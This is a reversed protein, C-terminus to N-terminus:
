APSFIRKLAQRMREYHSGPWYVRDCGACSSFNEQVALVTPPLRHAVEAKDVAALPVNCHLCLTFPRALPALGYRTVVERLQAEPKLARVYCGRRIEGCKLLERDRTLVIRAQEAALRRIEADDFANRHVTDFGLMRLFRALGGLHADALFRFDPDSGLERWPFIRITDGERVIRQLTAPEGNVSVAGVETHPVGLAEIANKLTAARACGYQFAHGRREKALFTELEASFCFSATSM